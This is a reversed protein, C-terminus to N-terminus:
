RTGELKLLILHCHFNLFCNNLFFSPVFRVNGGSTSGSEQTTPKNYKQMMESKDLVTQDSHKRDIVDKIIKM